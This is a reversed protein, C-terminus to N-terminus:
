CCGNSGPLNTGFANDPHFVIPYIVFFIYISPSFHEVSTPGSHRLRPSQPGSALWKCAKVHWRNFTFILM